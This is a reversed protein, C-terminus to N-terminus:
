YLGGMFYIGVWGWFLYFIHIGVEGLDHAGSAVAGRGRVSAEFCILDESGIDTVLVAAIYEPGLVAARLALNEVVRFERAFRFCSLHNLALFTM